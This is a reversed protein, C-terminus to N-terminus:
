AVPAPVVAVAMLRAILDAWGAHDVPVAQAPAMLIAGLILMECFRALARADLTPDVVGIRQAEELLGTLWEEGEELQDRAVAAVEPDRKAAVLAEIMLGGRGSPARDLNRGVVGILAAISAPDAGPLISEIEQRGRDHLAAALLEEKSGFHRYLAGNSLGARAAIDSVRTGELGRRDYEVAAADLLRRRTDAATLGAIRGM